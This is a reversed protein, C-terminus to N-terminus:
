RNETISLPKHTIIAKKLTNSIKMLTMLTRFREEHTKNLAARLLDMEAKEYDPERNEPSEQIM